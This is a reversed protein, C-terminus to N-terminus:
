WVRKSRLFTRVPRIIESRLRASVIIIIFRDASLLFFSPFRTKISLFSASPFNSIPFEDLRRYKAPVSKFLYSPRGFVVSATNIRARKKESYGPRFFLLFIGTPHVRFFRVPSLLAPTSVPLLYRPPSRHFEIKKKMILSENMFILLSKSRPRRSSPQRPPARTSAM